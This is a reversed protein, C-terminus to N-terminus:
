TRQGTRLWGLSSPKRWTAKPISSCCVTVECLTRCLWLPSKPLNASGTPGIVYTHRLRDEAKLVLPRGNAGPFNSEAVILGHRAMGEPPPLQRASGLHLGPVYVNGLPLGVLGVAEKTNLRMPWVTIPLARAYVRWAIVWAPLLRPTISVGPADLVRFANTVRNQLNVARAMTLASVAIRAVANFVPAAHKARVARAVEGSDEKHPLLAQAGSMLWQLRVVEGRAFPSLGSLLALVAAEAREHALPRSLSTLRLESAARINPQANLYDPAEEIRVGPLASRLQGLIATEQHLPMLLYYTIGKHMVVLEVAIPWRRTSAAVM